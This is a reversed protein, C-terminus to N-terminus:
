FTFLSIQNSEPLDNLCGHDRLAEIVTKSIKTRNVLDEISIFKQRGREKAINRAATEGVGELCKLPPILGKEGILFKDSDSKYLDVKEFSYGRAFMEQVVELVTLLNKEKATMNNGLSNLEKVKNDVAHKGKIVLDADFDEAKTTFYTAYFAEPYHVKFYAIRFSMMVYAVAHAKPFMYKIKQCSEIYWDPINFQKMYEIDEEALGKGKRVREMIKFARKKDLGAYILYLMIDDRTSIVESLPAIGNRVLDQANNIWVDTGHSLGSIRVLEAFTTPKTDLLM